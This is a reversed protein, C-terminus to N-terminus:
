QSVCNDFYPFTFLFHGPKELSATSQYMHASSHLASCNIYPILLLEVEVTCWYAVANKLQCQM